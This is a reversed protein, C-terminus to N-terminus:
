PTVEPETLRNAMVMIEIANLNEDGARALTAIPREYGGRSLAQAVVNAREIASSWSAATDNAIGIVAVRNQINAFLGGLDFLEPNMMSGASAVPDLAARPLSIMVYQDTSRFQANKLAASQKFASKLAAELYVLNDGERQAQAVFSRARGLVPEDLKSLSFAGNYSEAMPVFRDPDPQSMSFMLVFFTLLLLILDVFTVLWARGPAVVPHKLLLFASM